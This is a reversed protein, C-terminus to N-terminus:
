SRPQHQFFQRSLLPKDGLYPHLALRIFRKAQALCDTFDRRDFAQLVVGKFTDPQAQLVARFGQEVILEYDRQPDIPQGEIDSMFAYSYGLDDLLHFEFARLLPEYESDRHSLQTICTQYADFLTSNDDVPLLRTLLENIYFGCFLSHQSLHLRDCAAEHQNLQKLEGRGSFSLSYCQFLQLGSQMGKKRRIGKAVMQMRGSHQTLVDVLQSTERYARTHLIYGRDQKIM